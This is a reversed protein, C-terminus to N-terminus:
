ALRYGCGDLLGAWEQLSNDPGPRPTDWAHTTRPRTIRPLEHVGPDGGGLLLQVRTQGQEWWAWSGVIAVARSTVSRRDAATAGLLTPELPESGLRLGLM